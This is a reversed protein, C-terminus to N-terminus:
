RKTEGAALTQWLDRMEEDIRQQVQPDDPTTQTRIAVYEAIVERLTRQFKRKGTMLLNAVQQESQLSFRALLVAASPREESRLTPGMISVDFLEWVQAQGKQHCEEKVRHLTLQLVQRAWQRDLASELEPEVIANEDLMEPSKKGIRDRVYNLLATLLFTRFKGKAPDYRSLIQRELLKDAIFGQIYDDATQSDIRWRSRLVWRLPAHYRSLVLRLAEGDGAGARDVQSLQTVPFPEHHTVQHLPRPQEGDITTDRNDSM